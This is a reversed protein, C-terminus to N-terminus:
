LQIPKFSVKKIKYVPRMHDPGCFSAEIRVINSANLTLDKGSRLFDVKIKTYKPVLPTEGRILRYQSPTFYLKTGDDIEAEIIKTKYSLSKVMGEKSVIPIGYAGDNGAIDLDPLHNPRGSYGFTSVAQSGTDSSTVIAGPFISMNEIFKKFGIM